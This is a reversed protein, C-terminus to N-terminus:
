LKEFYNRLLNINKNKSYNHKYYNFANLAMIKKQEYSLESFQIIINKLNLPDNAKSCIGLSNKNVISNVEGDISGIIPLGSSLYFQFKSPITHNYESKLTILGADYDQMKKTLNDIQLPSFIVINSINNQKIQKALKSKYRGEGYIHIIVKYKELEQSIAILDKLNQPEGINGTFILKLYQRDKYLYDFKDEIPSWNSLLHIKHQSINLQNILYEKYSINQVLIIDSKKYIYVSLHYIIKKLFSNNIKNDIVKPWLDQVWIFIKIGFIKKLFFVSILSILPSPAYLFFIDHKNFRKKFNLIILGFFSFFIFSIYNIFLNIKSSKFRPIIPVRNIRVDQYIENTKNFFNYGKYFVGTPYNPKGTLVEVKYHNKLELVLDNIIFNEPWFYQSFVLIRM